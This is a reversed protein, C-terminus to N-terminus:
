DRDTDAPSEELIQFRQGKRALGDLLSQTEREDKGAVREVKCGAAILHEELKQPVGLPGGVITVYKALAADSASFGVTPRFAGVYKRAGLWDKEAWGVDSAWFLMYHYIPKDDVAPIPEAEVAEQQVQAIEQYLMQKWKQGQLWQAGPCATDMFEKHGKVRDLTVGLEQMLWAVLHAGARLQAPPPVQKTFNGLFCVGVGHPNARVAHYSM